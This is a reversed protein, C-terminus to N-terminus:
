GGGSGNIAIEVKIGADKEELTVTFHKQELVHSIRELEKHKLLHDDISLVIKVKGSGTNVNIDNISCEKRRVKVSFDDINKNEILFVLSKDVIKWKNDSFKYKFIRAEDSPEYNKNSFAEKIQSSDDFESLKKGDRTWNNVTSKKIEIEFSDKIAPINGFTVSTFRGDEQVSDCFILLFLIPWNNFEIKKFIKEKMFEQEWIECKKNARNHFVNQKHVEVIKNKWLKRNCDGECEIHSKLYGKCGSLAEWIDEDHCAIAFAAHLIIESSVKLNSKQIDCLKLISLASLLGHNKDKVAKEYFFKKAKKQANEGLNLLTLLKIIKDSLLERVMAADLNLLNLNQETEEDKVFLTDKFFRILWFDFNQLGYNFDHYTSAVLWADEIKGKYEKEFNEIVKLFKKTEYFKDLIYVGILFVQFQHVFHERYVEDRLLIEELHRQIEPYKLGFRDQWLDGIYKLAIEYDNRTEKRFDKALKLLRDKYVVKKLELLKDILVFSIKDEIRGKIARRKFEPEPYYVFYNLCNRLYGELLFKFNDNNDEKSLQTCIEDLLQRSEVIEEIQKKSTKLLGIGRNECVKKFENFKDNEEVYDPYAFFIKASPFYYQYFRMPSAELITVGCSTDTPFFIDKSIIKDTTIEVVVEDIRDGQDRKCYIPVRAPLFEDPYIEVTYKNNKFHKKLWQLMEDLKYKESM